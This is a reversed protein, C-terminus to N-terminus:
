AAWPLRGYAGDPGGAGATRTGVPQLAGGACAVRGAVGGGVDATSCIAHFSRGRHTGAKAAAAGLEGSSRARCRPHAGSGSPLSGVFLKLLFIRGRLSSGLRCRHGLTRGVCAEALEAASIMVPSHVASSHQEIPTMEIYGCHLWLTVHRM